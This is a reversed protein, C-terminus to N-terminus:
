QFIQGYRLGHHPYRGTVSVADSTKLLQDMLTRIPHARTTDPFDSNEIVSRKLPGPCAIRIGGPRALGGTCSSMHRRHGPLALLVHTMGGIHPGLRSQTAMPQAPREHYRGHGAAAGKEVPGVSRALAGCPLSLGIKIRCCHDAPGTQTCRDHDSQRNKDAECGAALFEGPTQSEKM